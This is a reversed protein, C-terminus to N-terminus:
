RFVPGLALVGSMSPCRSEPVHAVAPFQYFVPERTGPRCMQHWGKHGAPLGCILLGNRSGRETCERLFDAVRPRGPAPHHKGLPGPGSGPLHPTNDPGPVNLPRRRTNM